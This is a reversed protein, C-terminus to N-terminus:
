NCGILFLETLSATYKYVYITLVNNRKCQSEIYVTFGLYIQGQQTFVMDERNAALLSCIRMVMGDNCQM